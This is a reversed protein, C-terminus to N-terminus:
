CSLTATMARAPATIDLTAGGLNVTGTVNVQDYGADTMDVNYHSGTAFALNGTSLTGVGGVGPSVVGNDTVAGTTGTGSLTAGSAM